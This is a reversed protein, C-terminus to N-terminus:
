KVRYIIIYIIKKVMKHFEEEPINTYDYIDANLVTENEYEGLAETDTEGKISNTEETELETDKAFLNSTYM